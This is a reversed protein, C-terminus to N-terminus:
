SSYNYKQEFQKLDLNLENIEKNLQYIKMAVLKSIAIEIIDDKKHSLLYIELKKINTLSNKV